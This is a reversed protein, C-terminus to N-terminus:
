ILKNLSRGYEAKASLRLGPFLDSPTQLCQLGLNIAHQYKDNDALICFGDHVHFCIEATNKLKEYLQILYYLCITAAPSQVLFNRILHTENGVKRCRGFYDYSDGYPTDSGKNVYAFVDPFSTYIADRFKKGANESVNLNEAVGQYGMGFVTPLFVNKCKKRTEPNAELGTIRKWIGSYVDTETNVIETLLKDKCLWELVRVEMSSFDFYVFGKQDNTPALIERDEKILGHPNYSNILYTKGSKLRGNASGVLDYFSYVLKKNKRDALPLTEIKPIIETVLPKYIDQWIKKFKGWHQKLRALAEDFAVPRKSDTIGSWAEAIRLDLANPLNPLRGTKALCFSYINKLNWGIVISKESSISAIVGLSERIKKPDDLPLTLVDEDTVIKIAAPRNASYDLVDPEPYILFNKNKFKDLHELIELM